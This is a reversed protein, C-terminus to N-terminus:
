KCHSLEEMIFEKMGVLDKERKSVPEKSRMKEEIAKIEILSEEIKAKAKIKIDGRTPVKKDTQLNEVLM